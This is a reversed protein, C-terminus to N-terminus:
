QAFYFSFGWLGSVSSHVDVHCSCGRWQMCIVFLTNGHLCWATFLQTKMNTPWHVKYKSKSPLRSPWYILYYIPQRIKFLSNVMISWLSLSSPCEASWKENSLSLVLCNDINHLYIFITYGMRDLTNSLLSKSLTSNMCVRCNNVLITGVIITLQHLQSIPACWSWFIVVLVNKTGRLGAEKSLNRWHIWSLRRLCCM